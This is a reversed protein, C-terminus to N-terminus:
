SIIQRAADDPDITSLRELLRWVQESSIMRYVNDPEDVQAGTSMLASACLRAAILDYLLSRELSSLPRLEDYGGVVHGAATIPDDNDLMMYACAIALESVTATYVMDGFDILGCLRAASPDLHSVLINHDNADNYIVSHPLDCLRPVVRDRFRELMQQVLRRRTADTIHGLFRGLELTRVSDWPIERHAGPHDFALLLTDVQALTSGLERLLRDPHEPLHALKHGPLYSLLRVLHRGGDRAEVDVLISGDVSPEVEQFLDALSTTALYRLVEVQCRISTEDAAAPSIKLVFRRGDDAEILFNRDFEAVLEEARGDIAFRERAIGEADEPSFPPRTGM